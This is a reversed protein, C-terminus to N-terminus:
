PLVDPMGCPPLLRSGCVNSRLRPPAEDAPLLTLLEDATDPGGGAGGVAVDDDDEGAM